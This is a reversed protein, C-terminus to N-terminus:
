LVAVSSLQRSGSGAVKMTLRSFVIVKASAWASKRTRGSGASTKAARLVRQAGLCELGGFSLTQAQSTYDDEIAVRGEERRRKRRLEESAKAAAERRGSQMKACPEVAVSFSLEPAGVTTIGIFKM